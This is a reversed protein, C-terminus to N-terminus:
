KTARFVSAVELERKAAETDDRYVGPDALETSEVFSQLEAALSRTVTLLAPPNSDIYGKQTKVWITGCQSCWRVVDHEDTYGVENMRYNCTPCYM